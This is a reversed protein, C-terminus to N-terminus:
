ARQRSCCMCPLTSAIYTYAMVQRKYYSVLCHFLVSRKNGMLAVNAGINNSNSIVFPPPPAPLLLPLLPALSPLSVFVFFHHCQHLIVTFYKLSLVLSAQHPSSYPHSACMYLWARLDTLARHGEFTIRRGCGYQQRM